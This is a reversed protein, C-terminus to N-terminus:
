YFIIKVNNNESDWIASKIITQILFRKQSTDNINAITTGLNTLSTILHKIDIPRECYSSEKSTFFVLQKNLDQINKDLINIENMIRNSVSHSNSKSLQKILTNISLENEAIKEKINSVQNNDFTRNTDNLSKRLTSLLIEKNYGDLVNLVKKDLLNVRVNETSCKTIYKNQKGSCVYYEYPKNNKDKGSFKVIMNSGCKKCKLIGALLAHNKGTGSRPLKTKNINLQYQIQLWESSSIIGKHNSVAAICESNNSSSYYHKNKNYTIYGNGNPEGYVNIGTNLLYEHSSKDSMVYIPNRLVRRIATTDIHGGLKGTISNVNLIREIERISHKNMYSSYILKVVKLEDENPTLISLSKEKFDETLYIKKETNFGYPINGGLWRGSKALQIMNDRIREAITERELQAFVSSIYIMARGLPTSTDFREKISIFSVNYKQLLELTTSFDSVNRSIRDLRYCILINIKNNKIDNIMRQFEPRNTNKGSFGEDEYITYKLTHTDSIYSNCYNKCLEIQNEISEGRGTFISKRSYIAISLM